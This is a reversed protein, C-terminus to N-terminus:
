HITILILQVSDTAISRGATHKIHSIISIEVKTKHGVPLASIGKRIKEHGYNTKHVGVSMFELNRWKQPLLHKFFNSLIKEKTAYFCSFWNLCTIDATRQEPFSSRLLNMERWCISQTGVIGFEGGFLSEAVHHLKLETNLPHFFNNRQRRPLVQLTRCLSSFCFYIDININKKLTM